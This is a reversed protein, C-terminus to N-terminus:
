VIGEGCKISVGLSQNIQKERPHGEIIYNLGIPNEWQWLVLCMMAMPKVPVTFFFFHKSNPPRVM